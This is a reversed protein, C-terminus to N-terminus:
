HDGTWREVEDLLVLFMPTADASGYYPSHPREGFQTLEGVRLEHLIKGPEEDRFGDLKTAQLAALVRLTTKALEPAFPLAQHSTVLSDRGFLAM